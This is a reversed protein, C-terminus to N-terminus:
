SRMAAALTSELQSEIDIDKLISFDARADEAPGKAGCQLSSLAVIPIQATRPDSKLASILEVGSMRPMQIDTIIIDPELTALMELAELGNTAAEVQFGREELFRCVTHRILMSDDVVLALKPKPKSELELM